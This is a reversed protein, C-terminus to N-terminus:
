VFKMVKLDRKTQRGKRIVFNIIINEQEQSKHFFYNLWEFINSTHNKVNNFSNSLSSHISYLDEKTAYNKKTFWAM